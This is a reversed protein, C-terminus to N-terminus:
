GAIQPSRADYVEANIHTHGAKQAAWYRHHGNTLHPGHDTLTVKVPSTVGHAAVDSELDRQAKIKNGGPGPAHYVTKGSRTRPADEDIYEPPIGPNRTTFFLLRTARPITQTAQEVPMDFDASQMKGVQELSFQQRSMNDHATM